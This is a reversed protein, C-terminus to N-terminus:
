CVRASQCLCVACAYSRRVKPTELLWIPDVDAVVEDFIKLSVLIFGAEAHDEGPKLHNKEHSTLRTHLLAVVADVEDAPDEQV